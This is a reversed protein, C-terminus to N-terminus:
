ASLRLRLVPTQAGGDSLEYRDDEAILRYPRGITQSVPADHERFHVAPRLKLRVVGEGEVLRYTIYTTNQEHVLFVRKEFAHGAAPPRPLPAPRVLADLPATDPM